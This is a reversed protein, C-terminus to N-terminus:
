DEADDHPVEKPTARGAAAVAAGITLRGRPTIGLTQELQRIESAVALRVRFFNPDFRFKEGDEPEDSMWTMYNKVAAGMGGDLGYLEFLRAMPELDSVPDLVTAVPSTWVAAWHERLTAPVRDPPDPVVLTVSSDGLVAPLAHHGAREEVPKAHSM